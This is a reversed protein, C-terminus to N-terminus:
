KNGLLIAFRNELAQKFTKHRYKLSIALTFRTFINKKYNSIREVWERVDQQMIDGYQSILEKSQVSISIKEKHFISRIFDSLKKSFKINYGVVNKGSQRYYMQPYEDYIIKGKIIACLNLIFSDHMIIGKPLNSKRVCECLQKNIIMTCGMAKTAGIVVSYFSNDAIKNPFVNKIPNLNIDTVLANSYYLAPKNEEQNVLLSIGKSIKDKFWVDDQDAFAYYDFGTILSLLTLFSQAPGLNDGTIISLFGKNEYSKLINLTGDRSGDDRVFLRIYYDGEQCLISEIQDKLFTEGNYTSM